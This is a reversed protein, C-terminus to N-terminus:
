ESVGALLFVGVLVLAIGLLKRGSTDEGLLLGVASAIVITVGMFIPAGVSVPLASGYARLNFYDVSFVCAGACLLLVIGRTSYELTTHRVQNAILMLGIIVGTGEAIVPGLYPNVDRSARSVLVSWLGGAVAAM